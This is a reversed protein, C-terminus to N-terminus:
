LSCSAGMRLNDITHTHFADICMKILPSRVNSRFVICAFRIIEGNERRKSWRLLLKLFSFFIGCIGKSSMFILNSSKKEYENMHGYYFFSVVFWYYKTVNVLCVFVFCFRIIRIKFIQFSFTDFELRTHCFRILISAHSIAFKKAFSSKMCCCTSRM